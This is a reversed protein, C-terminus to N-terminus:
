LFFLFAVLSGIFSGVLVISFLLIYKWINKKKIQTTQKINENETIMYGLPLVSLCYVGNEEYKIYICNIHELYELISNLNEKDIKYKYPIETLLDKIEIIEYDGNHCQKILVKLVSKSKSDLM